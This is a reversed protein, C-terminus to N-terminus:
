SPVSPHKRRARRLWHPPLISIILNAQNEARPFTSAAPQRARGNSFSITQINRIAAFAPLPTLTLLFHLQHFSISSFQRPQISAVRTVERFEYLTPHPHPPFALICRYRAPRECFLVTGPTKSIAREPIVFSHGFIRQDYFDRTVRPCLDARSLAPSPLHSQLGVSYDCPRRVRIPKIACRSQSPSPWPAFLRQLVRETFFLSHPSPQFPTTFLV